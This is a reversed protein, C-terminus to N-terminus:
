MLFVSSNNETEKSSHKNNKPNQISDIINQALEQIYQGRFRYDQATKFRKLIETNGMKEFFAEFFHILTLYEIPFKGSINQKNLNSIYERVKNEENM